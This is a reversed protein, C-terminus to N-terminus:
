TTLFEMCPSSLSLQSCMCKAFYWGWSCLISKLIHRPIFYTKRSWLWDRFAGWRSIWTFLIMSCFSGVLLTQLLGSWLSKHAHLVPWWINRSNRGDRNQHCRVGFLPTLHQVEHRDKGQFNLVICCPFASWWCAKKKGKEQVFGSFFHLLCSRRASQQSYMVEMSELILSCLEPGVYISFTLPCSWM